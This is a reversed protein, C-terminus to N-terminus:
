HNSTRTSHVKESHIGDSFQIELDAPPDNLLVSGGHLIGRFEGTKADRLMIAPASEADWTLQVRNGSLRQAVYGKAASSAMAQAKAHTTMALPSSGANTVQVSQIEDITQQSLPVLFAFDAASPDSSDVIANPQFAVSALVVGNVDLAQWLYPGAQPAAAQATMQFAPQLTFEGDAVQGSVLLGSVSVDEDHPRAMPTGSVYGRADMIHEYTWDSIWVDNTCYSMFDSAALPHLNYVTSYPEWGPQGINGAPYPYAPDGAVACPSHQRGHNHGLEHIFTTPPYFSTTLDVGEGVVYNSIGLVGGGFAVPLVGYYQRSSGDNIRKASIENLVYGWDGDSSWYNLSVDAYLPASEIVDMTDAVPYTSRL